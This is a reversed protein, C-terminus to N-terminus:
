LIEMVLFFLLIAWGLLTLSALIFAWVMYRRSHPLISYPYSKWHRFVMYIAIPSCIITAWIFLFPATALAFAIRDYRVSEAGITDTEMPLKQKHESSFCSLCYSNGELETSCFGCMLIGCGHCIAIAQRDPHHLCTADDELTAKEAIVPRAVKEFGKLKIYNLDSGPNCVCIVQGKSTPLVLERETCQPCKM